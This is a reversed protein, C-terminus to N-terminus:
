RRQSGQELTSILMPGEWTGQGMCKSAAQDGDHQVVSGGHELDLWEIAVVPKGEARGHGGAELLTAEPANDSAV